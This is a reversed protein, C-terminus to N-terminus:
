SCVRCALEDDDDDDNYSQSVLQAGSTGFKQEFIMASMQDAPTALSAATPGASILFMIPAESVGVFEFELKGACDLSTKM